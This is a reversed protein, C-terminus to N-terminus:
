GDDHPPEATERGYATCVEYFTRLHLRRLVDTGHHRVTNPSIGLRYACEDQSEGLDCRAVVVENQRATLRNM